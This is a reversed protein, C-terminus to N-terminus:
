EAGEKLNEQPIAQLIVRVVDVVIVRWVHAVVHVTLNLKLLHGLERWWVLTGTAAHGVKLLHRLVQV